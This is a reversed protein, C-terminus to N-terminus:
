KCAPIFCDTKKRLILLSIPLNHRVLTVGRWAVGRRTGPRKNSQEQTSSYAFICVTKCDLSLKFCQVAQLLLPDCRLRLSHIQSITISVTITNKHNTYNKINYLALNKSGYIIYM